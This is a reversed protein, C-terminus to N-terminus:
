RPKVVITTAASQATLRTDTYAKATITYTGTSVYTWNWRYPSSVSAGILVGNRYFEVKTIRGGTTSASAELPITGQNVYNGSAVPSLLRVVPPPYISVSVPASTTALGRNDIAKATLVHTGQPATTWALTYPATTAQGILTAGNYYEVRAVAGDADTAGATLTLAAPYGYSGATPSTLRVTPPQTVQLTVPASTATGGSGDYARATISYTGSSVYTWQFVFPTKWATGIMLGNRYFEVKTVNASASAALTVTSQNKAIANNAPSTLQVTVGGGAPPPPSSTDPEEPQTPNSSVTLTVQSRATVGESNTAVATYTTTVSPAVTRSGTLAVNGVGPDISVSSADTASWSLTSSQGPQVSASSLTLTIGPDPSPGDPPTSGTSSSTPVVVFAAFKPATHPPVVPVAGVPASARLGTMVLNVPRGDYTGQYVPRGFYDQADRIQFAAGMPLRAASIDVPVASARGWNYVVINARGTEYKNPRVRVVTATPESTHFTNQPFTAPQTGYNPSGPNYLSNGTM